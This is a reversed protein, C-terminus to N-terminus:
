RPALRIDNRLKRNGAVREALLVALEREAGTIVEGELVLIGDRVAVSLQYDHLNENTALTAEVQAALEEATEEAERVRLFSEVRDVGGVTIAWRRATEAQASSEVEGELYITGDRARIGLDLNKLERHLAFAGRVKAGLAADDLKQGLSRESGAQESELDSSVELLNEVEDVGDVSRV